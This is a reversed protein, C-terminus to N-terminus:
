IKSTKALYHSENEDLESIDDILNSYRYVNNFIIIGLYRTM